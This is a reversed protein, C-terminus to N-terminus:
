LPIDFFSLFLRLWYIPGFSRPCLNVFIRCFFSFVKDTDLAVVLHFKFHATYSAGKSVLTERAGKWAITHLPRDTRRWSQSAVSSSNSSCPQTALETEPVVGRLATCKPGREQLPWLRGHSHTVRSRRPLRRRRTLVQCWSFCQSPGAAQTGTNGRLFRRVRRVNQLPLM